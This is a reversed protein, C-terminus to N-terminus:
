HLTPIGLNSSWCGLICVCVHILDVHVPLVHAYSLLMRVNIKSKPKGTNQKAEPKATAGGVHMAPQVFRRISRCWCAAPLLLLLNTQKAPQRSTM